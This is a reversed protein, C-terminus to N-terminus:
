PHCEIESIVHAPSGIGERYTSLPGLQGDKQVVVVRDGTQSSEMAFSRSQRRNGSTLLTCVGDLDSETSIKLLALGARIAVNDLVIPGDVSPLTALLHSHPDDTSPFQGLWNVLYKAFPAAERDAMGFFHAAEHVLRTQLSPYLNRFSEDYAGYSVFYRELVIVHKGITQGTERDLGSEEYDFMLVADRGTSDTRRRSEDYAAQLNQLAEIMTGFDVKPYRKRVEEADGRDVREQLSKVLETRAAFLLRAPGEDAFGGHFEKVGLASGSAMWVGILVATGLIRVNM